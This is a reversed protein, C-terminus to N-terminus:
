TDRPKLILSPSCVIDEESWKYLYADTMQTMM